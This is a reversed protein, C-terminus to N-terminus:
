TELILILLLSVNSLLFDNSFDPALFQPIFNITEGIYKCIVNRYVASM